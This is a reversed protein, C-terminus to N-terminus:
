QKGYLLLQVDHPDVKGLCFLFLECIMLEVKEKMQCKPCEMCCYYQKM